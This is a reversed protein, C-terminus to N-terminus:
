SFTRMLLSKVMFPSAVLGMEEQLTEARNSVIWCFFMSGITIVSVLPHHWRSSMLEISKHNCIHFCLFPLLSWYNIKATPLFFIHRFKIMDTGHNFASLSVEQVEV